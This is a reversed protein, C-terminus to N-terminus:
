TVMCPQSGSPMGEPSDSLAQLWALYDGNDRQWQRNIRSAYLAILLDRVSGRQLTPWLRYYRDHGEVQWSQLVTPSACTPRFSVHHADYRSWDRSLIRGQAELEDFVRSGPLPTLILFQVSSLALRRAFAVTRGLTQPGDTDFGLVFMGHIRIGTAQICRIHEEVEEIKQRKKAAELSEPNVSELGLYFQICGAERMQAVLLPDRAVDARVQASWQLRRGTTRGLDKLMALLERTRHPSAAFNDDYFFYMTRGPDHRALEERVREVSRYRMARGFTSTVTCFSCDHPCGRSTQVPVIRRLGLLNRAGAGEVLDLDPTPWRDLDPELPAMANHVPLGDRWWSLNPVDALARKGDIAQILAPLAEEGEGRVVYDGHDLAERAQHTVHPGGLVVRQGRARLRDALAYAGVATPTIVSIGVLDAAHIREMDLPRVAEVMVTVEYGLDKLLTGLLVVGLRPLGFRSFINLGPAQPELLVVRRIPTQM